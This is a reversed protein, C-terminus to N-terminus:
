DAPASAGLHRAATLLGSQAARVAEELTDHTSSATVPGPGPLCVFWRGDSDQGVDIPMGDRGLLYCPCCEDRCDSGVGCADIDKEQRLEEILEDDFKFTKPRDSM